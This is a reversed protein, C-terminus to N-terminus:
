ICALLGNHWVHIFIHFLFAECKAHNETKEEWFCGWVLVTRRADKEEKGVKSMEEM